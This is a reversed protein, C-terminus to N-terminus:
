CELSKTHQLGSKVNFATRIAYEFTEHVSKVSRLDELFKTLSILEHDGEGTFPLIPAGNLLKLSYIGVRSDVIITNNSNRGSAFLFSYYKVSYEQNEFLAHDGYIRHAFFKHNHEIADLVPSCYLECGNCFVILEYDKSMLELFDM